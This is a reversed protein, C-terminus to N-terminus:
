SRNQVAQHSIGAFAPLENDDDRLKPKSYQASLQFWLIERGKDEQQSEESKEDQHETTALPSHISTVLEQLEREIDELGDPMHGNQISRQSCQAIAKSWLEPEEEQPNEEADETIPISPRPHSYTTALKELKEQFNRLTTNLEDRNRAYHRAAKSYLEDQEKEGCFNESPEDIQPLSPLMKDLQKQCNRLTENLEDRPQFSDKQHGGETNKQEGESCESESSQDSEDRCIEQVERIQQQSVQPLPAKRSSKKPRTRHTPKKSRFAAIDEKIERQLCKFFSQIARISAHKKYNVSNFSALRLSSDNSNSNALYRQPLQLSFSRENKPSSSAKRVDRLSKSRKTMEPVIPTTWISGSSAKYLTVVIRGANPLKQLSWKSGRTKVWGGTRANLFWKSNQKSGLQIYTSSITCLIDQKLLSPSTFIYLHVFDSSQEWEFSGGNHQFRRQTSFLPQSSTPITQPIVTTNRRERERERELELERQRNDTPTTKSSTETKLKRNMHAGFDRLSQNLEKRDRLYHEQIKDKLPKPPSASVVPQQQEQEKQKEQSIELGQKPTDEQQALREKLCAQISAVFGIPAGMSKWHNESIHQLQWAERIYENDLRELVKKLVESSLRIRTAATELVSTASSDAHM